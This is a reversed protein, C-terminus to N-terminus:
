SGEGADPYAVQRGKAVRVWTSSPSSILIRPNSEDARLGVVSVLDGAEVGSLQPLRRAPLRAVLVREGVIEDDITLNMLGRAEEVSVVEGRTGSLEPIDGVARAGWYAPCRTAHSCFGCADASPRGLSRFDESEVVKNFLAVEERATDVLASVRDWAVAFREIPFAIYRVEAEHIELGLEDALHAYILVQNLYHPDGERSRGTKFDIVVGTEAESADLILDPTGYFPSGDPRVEEEIVRKRAGWGEAESRVRCAEILLRAAVDNVGPWHQPEGFISELANSSAAQWQAQVEQHWRSEVSARFAEVEDSSVEGRAVAALVNHAATGLRAAPTSAHPGGSNGRDFAVRLPCAILRAFTSPAVRDLPRVPM